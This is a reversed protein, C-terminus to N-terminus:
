VSRQRKPEGRQGHNKNDDHSAKSVSAVTFGMGHAKCHWKARVPSVCSFLRLM